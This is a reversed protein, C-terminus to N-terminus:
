RKTLMAASIIKDKDGAKILDELRQDPIGGVRGLVLLFPTSHGPVDAWSAGEILPGLAKRSLANLVEPNRSDTMRLLLLSAKNRDTWSGSYLLQILPEVNIMPHDGSSSASLVSLARVANNRVENDPDRIAQSLAEAQSNSSQAYGLLAAAARRDKPDGSTALVERLEAERHIAYSRMALHVAKLAPDDSISYGKSDDEGAQGRAVAQMLLPQEQEYLRAGEADLHTNGSPTSRTPVPHWTSGPLGIFIELKKSPDCCTVNVDTPSKGIVSQVANEVPKPSFTAFTLSDGSHWPVAARIKQLPLDGYGFYNIEGIAFPRHAMDADQSCAPLALILGISCVVLTPKM